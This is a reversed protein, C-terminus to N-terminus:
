KASHINQQSGAPHTYAPFRQPTKQQMNAPLTSGTPCTKGFENYNHTRFTVTLNAKPRKQQTHACLAQPHYKASDRALTAAPPTSSTYKATHGSSTYRAGPPAESTYKGSRCHFCPLPSFPSFPSPSAFPLSFFSFAHSKKQILARHTYLPPRQTTKAQPQM